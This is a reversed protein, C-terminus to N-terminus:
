SEIFELNFKLHLYQETILFVIININNRLIGNIFISLQFM